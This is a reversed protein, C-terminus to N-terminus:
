IRACRSSGAILCLCEDTFDDDVVLIRFRRGDAFADGVFDLSRLQNLDSPITM